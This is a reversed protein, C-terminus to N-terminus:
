NTNAINQTPQSQRAHFEYSSTKGEHIRYLFATLQVSIGEFEEQDFILLVLWEHGLIKFHYLIISFTNAFFANKTNRFVSAHNILEIQGNVM